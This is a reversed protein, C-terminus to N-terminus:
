HAHNWDDGVGVDVVLPVHLDAASSMIRVVNEQVEPLCSNEVELVLEDHVQMVMRAELKEDSLWKDVDLMAKKIVDAAAGQVPANIAVRQATKLQMGSEQIGPIYLRRGFLTDVYGLVSAQKITNEMYTLVGPYRAFYKDVYAQAERTDVDLTQSLGFVSMGYVLGFNIAKARRRDESSVQDVPAGNCFVEAATAAHVDQGMRFANLLGEDQSIHALLRLEIQSYDAALIKYGPPAGFAQRVRRGIDNRIPVNQLNPESSSLRGTSTVVQNYTTHLRGTRSNVMTPLKQTVNSQITKLSRHKLLLTPLAFGRSSLESLVSESTSPVGKPTKKVVPMQLKDFLIEALQKTSSLNFEEGALTHADAAMVQLQQSIEESHESLLQADVLAGNVEMRSLVLQLPRELEVYLARLASNDALRAALQEHVRLNYVVREAAYTAAAALPVQDFPLEKAGKGAISEYSTPMSVGLYAQSLSQLDRAPHVTNLVYAELATDNLVLSDDLRIGRVALLNALRKLDHAIIPRAAGTFLLEQLLGLVESEDLGSPADPEQHKLPVYVAEESGTAMAIGVLAADMYHGSGVFLEIAVGERAQCINAAMWEELEACSSVVRHVVPGGAPADGHWNRPLEGGGELLKLHDKFELEEYLKRLAAKDPECRVLGEGVLPIDVDLKLSALFYSSKAEHMGAELKQALTKSGRVKVNAVEDLNSYIDDIGGPFHDLLAVATMQGIGAVGSINDTQDGVLALYDRFMEPLVKFKEIVAAEDITEGKANRVSVLNSVLQNFDKDTSAIVVRQNKAVARQTLTGIVDDAEVGKVQLFPLGMAKIIKISWEAQQALEPTFDESRHSKYGPFQEKRFSPGEADFVVVVCSDPFERQLKHLMNIMGLIAGTPTGNSSCLDKPMAHMARYMYNLGDVLVLPPADEGQQTTTTAADPKTAGVAPRVCACHHRLLGTRARGM